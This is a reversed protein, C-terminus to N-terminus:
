LVAEILRPGPERMAAAFDRIFEDATAARVAEVGFGEALEIWDPAPHSLDIMRDARPGVAGAGTRQMEIELIRYRRNALIVITIDLRERAMTWLSQPTYMASGDAEIAVVKRGPCALAAGLAVPLGQGISGGTVPLHDHRAAGALHPWIQGSSSVSEDSFIAGEPALAGLTRALAEVTLPEGRPLEPRQPVSTNSAALGAGLEEALWELAGPGDQGDSALVDFACGPPALTSRIGPYGFFSVPPRAEVLVLREFGALLQQAQEPFYPIREVAPTDGGRTMRATNRDAFVRVGTAARVREAARLGRAQLASGALLLGVAQGSRLTCVVDRVRDADPLSPAPRPAPAGPEGAESWSFDAPVILTAVKGPPGLAAAVAASAAEGMATARDLTRVWASVPRAFAEIDATLPADFRLHQTTHEGVINVVPSRAKRANHLNALANALGPGLHLLTAAPKGAMRAYGDAAGSCVGEFLGLVGRMEPVRDLASVFQMESTGPNMLCLDIGNALLTRLLCEAGNM